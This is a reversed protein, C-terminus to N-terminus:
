EGAWEIGFAPSTGEMRFPANDWGEAGLYLRGSNPQDNLMVLFHEGDPAWAVDRLHEGQKGRWVSRLAHTRSLLLYVCHGEFLLRV